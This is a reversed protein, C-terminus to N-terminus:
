VPLYPEQPLQWGAWAREQALTAVQRGPDRVCAAAVVGLLLPVLIQVTCGRVNAYIPSFSGLNFLAPQFASFSGFYVAYALHIGDSGEIIESKVKM